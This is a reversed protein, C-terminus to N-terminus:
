GAALIGPIALLRYPVVHEHELEEQQGRDDRALRPLVKGPGV